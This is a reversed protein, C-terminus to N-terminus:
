VLRLIDSVFRAKRALMLVKFRDSTIWPLKWGVPHGLLNGKLFASLNYLRAKLRYPPTLDTQSKCVDECTDQHAALQLAVKNLLKEVNESYTTHADHFQRMGCKAVAAVMYAWCWAKDGPDPSDSRVRWTFGISREKGGDICTRSERIAYNGPLWIGNHCGNVNYGIHEKITWTKTRSAAKGGKVMYKKFLQSRALSAKGPILHHAAVAYPYEVARDDGYGTRVMGGNRRRTDVALDQDKTVDPAPFEQNITGAAGPSPEELNKGLVGGSNEQLQQVEDLDDDAPSEPEDSVGKAESKFPCSESFAALVEPPCAPEGVEM